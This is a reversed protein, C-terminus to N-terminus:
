ASLCPRLDRPPRPVLGGLIQLPPRKLLSDGM